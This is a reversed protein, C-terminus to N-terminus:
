SANESLSQNPPGSVKDSWEWNHLDLFDKAASRSQVDGVRIAQDRKLIASKKLLQRVKLAILPQKQFADAGSLSKETPVALSRITDPCLDFM